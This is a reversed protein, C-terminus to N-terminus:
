PRVNPHIMMLGVAHHVGVSSDALAAVVRRSLNGVTTREWAALMRGGRSPDAGRRSSVNLIAKLSRSAQDFVPAVEAHLDYGHMIAGRMADEGARTPAPSKAARFPDPILPTWLDISDIYFAARADRILGDLSNVSPGVLDDQAESLRSTAANRSPSRDLVRSTPRGDEAERAKATLSKEAHARADAVKREILAAALRVWPRARDALRRDIKDLEAQTM